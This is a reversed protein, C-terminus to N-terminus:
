RLPKNYFDNLGRDRQEFEIDGTIANMLRAHITHALIPPAKLGKWNEEIDHVFGATTYSALDVQESPPLGLLFDKDSSAKTITERQDDSLIGTPNTLPDVRHEKATSKVADGFYTTTVDIVEGGEMILNYLIEAEPTGHPVEGFDLPEEEERRGM